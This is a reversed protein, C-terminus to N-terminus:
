TAACSCKRRRAPCCAICPWATQAAPPPMSSATEWGSLPDLNPISPRSHHQHRQHSQHLLPGPPPATAMTNSSRSCLLRLFNPHRRVILARLPLHLHLHPRAATACIKRPLAPLLTPPFCVSFTPSQSTATTSRLCPDFTSEPNSSLCDIHSTMCEPLIVEIWGNTKASWKRVFNTIANCSAFLTNCDVTGHRLVSAQHRAKM